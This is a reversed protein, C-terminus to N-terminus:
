TTLAELQRNAVVLMALDIAQTSRLESLLRDSQELRALRGAAWREILVDPASPESAERAVAVVLHRQCAYLDDILASLAHKDWARQAPLRAALQRLWSLGLREGVAFHIKAVHEVSEGLEHATTVIDGVPLLLPLSAVRRALVEPVGSAAIQATQQALWTREAPALCDDLRSSLERLGSGYRDCLEGIRLRSAHARLLWVTFATVARGIELLLSTQVGTAVVNDLAEVGNWLATTEFVERAAVFAQAVDGAPRGSKESAEHIFTIGARNVIENSIVTAIIERRLRHRKMREEFRPSLREPFYCRLDRELYPDDPLSSDVLASSLSNKAYSLLVCLEPRAFGINRKQREALIDDDPLAELSRDLAGTRELGRMFRALRDTMRAGLAQSVSLAQTQLYNDRLVLEAVDDTMQKLLEDRQKRTIEEAREAEGLLIKINVEHDSCDVGASNDIFDTNCRGGHLAYDVRARQTLALNAGEGVVRARLETAQVRVGDNTRDGVDAHSEHKGRVYTGIGGFFLLDVDMRLITSILKNPPMSTDTVGLLSRVEPSLSIAKVKREFVGGGPSIVKPDYDSWASRPLQFLRARERYSAAPDPNPDLFIHQHNFAAVLRTQESQLLGNGFVDGSMDGVASCTFPERQIDRGLERFHRKISEWAGRATIGMKKHDYGASGGSAFADGLWFGYRGSVENAIDSFTATGKDAAVVLYPDEGDHAVVEPPTIVDDGSRNDTVDLLGSIFTKYCNIGEALFAERGAEPPPPQKVVFGGKSGVPVIVANKVQQAKVLGLVETRYDEPRDSWRLGGRAVPGFRLHVGEVRPSFVFIERFPRPLPLDPVRTSDIKLSVYDKLAGNKDPQFFNTRTTADIVTVLSRLIRDEDLSAVGDLKRVAVELLVALRAARAGQDLLQGEPSKLAPDFKTAFLSVLLRAIEANKTLTQQMYDLSFPLQGQRLYRAYARLLKIDRATLGAHLVLKNFGDNSVTGRWVCSLVEIFSHKVRALEIAVHGETELDFDHARIGPAHAPKIAYPVEGIVRLGMNELMPVVDSLATNRASSMFVKLAVQYPAAEVRHYLHMTMEGTAIAAEIFEIDSVATLEDDRELYAAPFADAYDRARQTGKEEGHENILAAFIRDHWSRTADLLKREITAHEFRQTEQPQTKVIIHVRALPEDGLKTYFASISGRYADSLIEQLRLRLRTDMRDRPVYVLCSVFRGFPDRRSFLAVRQRNQLHLIGTAVHLLDDESIQFLEDRPYTELIFRLAKWDHGLPPLKAREMVRAVKHRVLPVKDTESSYAALSFLGIFLHCRERRLAPPQSFDTVLVADFHVPRHVTSRENAKLIRLIEGEAAPQYHEFVDRSPDALLGFGVAAKPFVSHGDAPAANLDLYRAGFFAFHGADLWRLFTAAESAAAGGESEAFGDLREALDACSARMEQFDRVALAVDGLVRVLGDRLDEKQEADRAGVRVHIFSENNGGDSSRPRVSRLSGDPARDVSVVPHCVLQLDSQQRAIEGLVSDVLFPVDDTVIEVVTHQSQWGHEDLTPTFVRVSAQGRIRERGFGLLSLASAYLYEARQEVLDRPPAHRYLETMFSKAVDAREPPLRREAVSRIEEILEEKILESATAM